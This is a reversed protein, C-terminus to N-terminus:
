PFDQGVMWLAHPVDNLRCADNRVDSSENSSPEDTRHLLYIWSLRIGGRRGRLLCCVIYFFSKVQNIFVLLFSLFSSPLVFHELTWQTGVVVSIATCLPPLSKAVCYCSFLVLYVAALGSFYHLTQWRPLFSVLLWSFTTTPWCCSSSRPGRLFVQIKKAEVPSAPRSRLPCRLRQDITGCVCSYSRAAAVLLVSERAGGWGSLNKNGERARHNYPALWKDERAWRGDIYDLWDPTSAPSFFSSSTLPLTDLFVVIAVVKGSSFTAALLQWKCISRHTTTTTAATTYVVATM